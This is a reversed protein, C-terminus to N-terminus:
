NSARSLPSPLAKPAVMEHGTELEEDEVEGGAAARAALLHRIINAEGARIREFGGRGEIEEVQTPVEYRSRGSADDVFGRRAKLLYHWLGSPPCRFGPSM